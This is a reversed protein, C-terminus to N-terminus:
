RGFIDGMGGSRSGGVGAAAKERLMSIISDKSHQGEPLEGFLSKAEDPLDSGQSKQMLEQRSTMSGVNQQVWMIVREIMQANM